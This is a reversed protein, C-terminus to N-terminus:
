KQVGAESPRWSQTLSDAQQVEAPQLRAALRAKAALASDYGGRGALSYWVYAQFDSQPAGRGHEYQEGLLAQARAVGARGLPVLLATATGHEGRGM